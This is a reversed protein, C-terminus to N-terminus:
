MSVIQMNVTDLHTRYINLRALLCGSANDKDAILDSEYSTNGCPRPSNLVFSTKRSFLYDLCQPANSLLAFLHRTTTKRM